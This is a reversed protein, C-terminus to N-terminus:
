QICTTKKLAQLLEEAPVFVRADAVTKGGGGKCINEPLRKILSRLVQGSDGAAFSVLVKEGCLILHATDPEDVRLRDSRERLLKIEQPIKYYHIKLPIQDFSGLYTVYFGNSETQGSAKEAM